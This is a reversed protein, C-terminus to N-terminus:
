PRQTCHEHKGTLLHLCSRAVVVASDEHLWGHTALMPCSKSELSVSWNCTSTQLNGFACEKSNEEAHAVSRRVSGSRCLATEGSSAQLAAESLDRPRHRLIFSEFRLKGQKMSNSNAALLAEFLSGPWSYAGDPGQSPVLCVTPLLEM